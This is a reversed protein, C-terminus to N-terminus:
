YFITVYALELALTFRMCLLLWAALYHTAKHQIMADLHAEDGLVYQILDDIVWCKKLDWMQAWGAPSVQTKNGERYSM